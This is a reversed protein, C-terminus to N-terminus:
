VNGDVANQQDKRIKKGLSKTRAILADIDEGDEVFQMGASRPGADDNIHVVKCELTVKERGNPSTTLFCKDGMNLQGLDGFVRTGGFSIDKVSVIHWDNDFSLVGALAEPVYRPSARREVTLERPTASEQEKNNM